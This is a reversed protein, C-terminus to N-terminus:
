MINRLLNPTFKKIIFILSFSYNKFLIIRRFPYKLAYKSYCLISRCGRCGTYRISSKRTCNSWAFQITGWSSPMLAIEINELQSETIHSAFNCPYNWCHFHLVTIPYRVYEIYLKLILLIALITASQMQKLVLKRKSLRCIKINYM